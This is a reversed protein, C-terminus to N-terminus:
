ARRSEKKYLKKLVNRGRARMAPTGTQTLSEILPLVEEKLAPEIETLEALAQMAGAKVGGSDYDLYSLLIKHVQEIDQPTLKLRTITSCFSYRAVWHDSHAVEQILLDKYPQVRRPQHAAIVSLVRAAKGQVHAEEHFLLEAIGRFLAPRRMVEAAVEEIEERKTWVPLTLKDLITHKGKRSM